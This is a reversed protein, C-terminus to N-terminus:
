PQLRSQALALNFKVTESSPYLRLAQSYDEVAREYDNKTFHATGRSNYAMWHSPRIEIAENCITIAEDSQQNSNLAVCLANLADYHYPGSHMDKSFKDAMEVAQETKGIELLQSIRDLESPAGFWLRNVPQSDAGLRSQAHIEFSHGTIVIILASLLIFRKM